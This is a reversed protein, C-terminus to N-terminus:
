EALDLLESYLLHPESNAIELTQSKGYHEVMQRKLELLRQKAENRAQTEKWYSDGEAANHYSVDNIAQLFRSVLTNNSM